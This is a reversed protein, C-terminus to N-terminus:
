FLLHPRLPTLRCTDLINEKPFLTDEPNVEGGEADVNNHVNKHVDLGRSRNRSHIAALPSINPIFIGYTSNRKGGVVVTWSVQM